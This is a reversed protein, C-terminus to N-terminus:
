QVYYNFIKNIYTIIFFIYLFIYYINHKGKHKSKNCSYIKINNLKIIIM